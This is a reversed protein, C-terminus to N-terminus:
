GSHLVIRNDAPSTIKGFISIKEEMKPFIM